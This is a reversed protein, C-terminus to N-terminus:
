PNGFDADDGVDALFEHSVTPAAVHVGHIGVDFQGCQAVGYLAELSPVPFLATRELFGPFWGHRSPRCLGQEAAGPASQSRRLSLAM